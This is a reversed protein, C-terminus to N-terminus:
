FSRGLFRWNSLVLSRIRQERWLEEWRKRVRRLVDEEVPVRPQVGMDMLILGEAPAPPVAKPRPKELLDFVDVEGKVHLVVGMVMRRVMQRLFSRGVVDFVTFGPITFSSFSFVEKVTDQGREPLSFSAFDKRGVFAGLVEEPIEVEEPYYYRYWRWFVRPREKIRIKGLVFVDPIENAAFPDTSTLCIAHNNLASVGADTRSLFRVKGGLVKEMEGEVTRQDPQVNTGKFNWGIYAVRCLYREMM